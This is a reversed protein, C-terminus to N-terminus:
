SSYDTNVAKYQQLWKHQEAEALDKAYRNVADQMTKIEVTLM